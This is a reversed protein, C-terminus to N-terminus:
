INKKIQPTDGFVVPNTLLEGVKHYEEQKKPCQENELRSKYYEINEQIVSDPLYWM